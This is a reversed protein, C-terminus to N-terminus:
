FSSLERNIGNELKIEKEEMLKNTTKATIIAAGSSTGSYGLIFSSNTNPYLPAIEIFESKIRNELNSNSGYNNILFLEPYDKSYKDIIEQFEAIQEKNLHFNNLDLINIKNYFELIEKPIKDLLNIQQNINERFKLLSISEVIM